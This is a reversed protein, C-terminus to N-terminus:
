RCQEVEAYPTGDANLLPTITIGYKDKHWVMLYQVGTEEDTLISYRVGDSDAMIRTIIDISDDTKDVAVNAYSCGTLALALAACIAAIALKRM